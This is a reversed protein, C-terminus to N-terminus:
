RAHEHLEKRGLMTIRLLSCGLAPALSERCSDSDCVRLRLANHFSASLNSSTLVGYYSVAHVGSCFLVSCWSASAWRM